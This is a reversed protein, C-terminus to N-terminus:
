QRNELVLAHRRSASFRGHWRPHQLGPRRNGRARVQGTYQSGRSVAQTRFNNPFSFSYVHHRVDDTNPFSVETGQQIPLVTPAFQRARQDMVARTGSAAPIPKDGHVSIVAHELRQGQADTVTVLLSSAWGTGHCLVSFLLVYWAKTSM